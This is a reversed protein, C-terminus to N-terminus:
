EMEQESEWIMEICADVMGKDMARDCYAVMYGQSNIFYTTPISRIHYAEAAEGDLDFYVPFQYGAENLFALASEKTETNGDTLNVMVFQVESGMAQYVEEFDPMEGRCPGCWSAWFNLVVPKGELSSLKVPNGERDYVTFDPASPLKNKSATTEHSHDHGSCGALLLVVLLFIILRKM